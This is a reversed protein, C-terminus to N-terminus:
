DRELEEMKNLVASYATYRYVDGAWRRDSTQQEIWYRLKEWRIDEDTLPARKEEETLFEDFVMFMQGNGKTKYEM